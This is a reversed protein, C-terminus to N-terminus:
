KKLPKLRYSPFYRAARLVREPEDASVPEGAWRSWTKASGPNIHMTEILNVAVERDTLPEALAKFKLRGAQVGVRADALINRNWDTNGGWGSMIIIYGTGKERRYELPTLRIKGSKRGTTTLLLVFNGFFPLGLKYFILPVKFLWKFVPGPQDKPVLRTMILDEAMIAFREIITIRTVTMTPNNDSELYVRLFPMAAQAHLTDRWVGPLDM